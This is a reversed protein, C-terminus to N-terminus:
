KLSEDKFEIVSGQKTKELMANLKKMFGEQYLMDKIVDGLLKEGDKVKIKDTLGPVKGQERKDVKYIHYGDPLKIPECYQGEQLGFLVAALGSPLDKKYTFDPFEGGKEKTIADDSNQKATEGFDAGGKLKQMVADTREKAKVEGGAGLAIVITRLKLRDESFSDRNNSYYEQVDNLSIKINKRINENLFKDILVQDKLKDKIEEMSIRAAGIAKLFNEEGGYRAKTNEVATDLESKNVEINSKKAEQLILTDGVLKDIVQKKLTRKQVDTINPNAEIYPGYMSEIDSQMIAEGNVVAAVGDVPKEAAYAAVALVTLLAIVTIAKM